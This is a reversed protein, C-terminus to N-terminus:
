QVALLQVKNVGALQRIKGTLEEFSIDEGGYRATITLNAYGNIPINQNITMVNFGGDALVKLIESLVGSIDFLEFFLTFMREMGSKHYEFVFDKYKYFASRSIGVAAIAEGTKKVSGESLMKKVKLVKLFVEPAIKTNVLVFDNNM